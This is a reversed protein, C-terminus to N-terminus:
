LYLDGHYETAKYRGDRSRGGNQLLPGVTDMHAETVREPRAGARANVRFPKMEERWDTGPELWRFYIFKGDPTWQVDTPERGVHEPGRMINDISFDFRGQQAHVPAALLLVTLAGLMRM